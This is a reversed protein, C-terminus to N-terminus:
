VKICNLMTNKFPQKEPIAAEQLTVSQARARWSQIGLYVLYLAGAYKIFLFVYLSKSIVAALGLVALTTWVILALIIGVMTLIGAKRGHLITNKLVLLSDVGPVMVILLAVVAFMWVEQM